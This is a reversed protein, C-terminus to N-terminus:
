GALRGCTVLWTIRRRLPGPITMGLVQRRRNFTDADIRLADEFEGLRHLDAALATASRLTDIHDIGLTGIRRVLTDEDLRRAESYNGLDRYAV